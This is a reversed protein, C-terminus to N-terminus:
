LCSSTNLLPLSGFLFVFANFFYYYFLFFVYAVEKLVSILAKLPHQVTTLIEKGHVKRSEEQVLM